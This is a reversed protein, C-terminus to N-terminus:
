FFGFLFIFLFTILYFSISSSENSCLYDMWKWRIGLEVVDKAPERRWGRSALDADDENKKRLKEATLESNSEFDGDSYVEKLKTGYKISRQELYDKIEEWLM